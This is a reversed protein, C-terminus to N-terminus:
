DRRVSQQPITKDSVIGVVHMLSEACAIEASEPSRKATVALCKLADLVLTERVDASLSLTATVVNVIAAADAARCSLGVGGPLTLWSHWLLM